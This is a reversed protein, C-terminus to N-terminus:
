LLKERLKENVGEAIPKLADIVAREVHANELCRALAAILRVTALLGVEREAVRLQNPVPDGGFIALWLQMLWEADREHALVRNRGPISVPPGYNCANAPAPCATASAPVVIANIYFGYAFNPPWAQTTKIYHGAGNFYDLYVPQCNPGCGDCVEPNGGGVLPDVVMEAIEHSLIQAYSFALDDVTLNQGFLNVFIYPVSAAAHYGGIGAARDGDTNTMSQPNLVVICAKSSLGNAAAIADIWSTLQIDNYSASPLTVSHPLITPSVDVANAGYQGAYASIPAAADTAYAIATAVDAASVEFVANGQDQVTFAVQAFYLTGNFLPGHSQNGIDPFVIDHLQRALQPDLGGNPRRERRHLQALVNLPIVSGFGEPPESAPMVHPAVKQLHRANKLARTVSIRAPAVGVSPSDVKSRAM